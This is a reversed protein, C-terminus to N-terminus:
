PLTRSRISTRSRRRSRRRFFLAARIALLVTWGDPWPIPGWFQDLSKAALRPRVFVPTRNVDREIPVTLGGWSEPRYPHSAGAERRWVDYVSIQNFTNSLLTHLLLAALLLPLGGM